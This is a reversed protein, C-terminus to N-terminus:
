YPPGEIDRTLQGQICDPPFEYHLMELSGFGTSSNVAGITNLRTWNSPPQQWQILSIHRPLRQPFLCAVIRTSQGPSVESVHDCLLGAQPVWLDDWHAVTTGDGITCGNDDLNINTLSRWLTSCSARKITLPLTEFIKYKERLLKIWLSDNNTVLAMGLM